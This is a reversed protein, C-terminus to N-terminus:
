FQGKIDIQTNDLMEQTNQSKSQQKSSEVKNISQTDNPMGRLKGNSRQQEAIQRRLTDAESRKKLLEEEKKAAELQMGLISLEEEEAPLQFDLDGRLLMLPSKGTLHSM